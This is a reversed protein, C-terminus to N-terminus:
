FKSKKINTNLCLILPLRCLMGNFCKKPLFVPKNDVCLMFGLLPM